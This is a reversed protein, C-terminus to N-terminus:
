AMGAASGIESFYRGDIRIATMKETLM